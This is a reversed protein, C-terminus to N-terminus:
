ALQHSANPTYACAVLKRAGNVEQYAIPRHWRLDGATTHMVLDGSRDLTAKEVGDFALLIKDPDAGPSVVFDYELQRQNGYYILDVGPYVNRYPVKAYNALGTHWKHPDNGIFYNSRSPQQEVPESHASPKGGVARMRVTVGRDLAMVAEAHSLVLRYETGHALFDVQGDTQGRNPEFSLPRTYDSIAPKPSTNTHAALAFQVALMTVLALCSHAVTKRFMTLRTQIMRSIM